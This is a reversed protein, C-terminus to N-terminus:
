APRGPIQNNDGVAEDDDARPAPAKRRAARFASAAVLVMGVAGAIGFAAATARTAVEKAAAWCGLGLAALFTFLLFAGVRPPFDDV